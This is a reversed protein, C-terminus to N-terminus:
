TLYEKSVSKRDVFMQISIRTDACSAIPTVAHPERGDNVVLRNYKPQVFIGQTDQKDDKKCFFGGWNHDWTENLYITVGAVDFDDVDAPDEYTSHTDSHWDISSLPKAFQILCVFFNPEEVVIKHETLINLLIGKIAEDHIEFLFPTITTPLLGGIEHSYFDQSSQWGTADESSKVLKTFYLLQENNLFDDIVKM